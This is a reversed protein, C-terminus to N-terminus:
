LACPGIAAIVFPPVPMDVFVVVVSRVALLLESNVTLVTIIDVLFTLRTTCSM